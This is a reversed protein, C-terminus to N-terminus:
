IKTKGPVAVPKQPQALVQKILKEFGAVNAPNHVSYRYICADAAAAYKDINAQVGDIPCLVTVARGCCRSVLVVDAGNSWAM